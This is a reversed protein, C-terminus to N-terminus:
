PKSLCWSWAQMMASMVPEFKSSLKFKYNESGEKIAHPSNEPRSKKHVAYTTFCKRKLINRRTDTLFFMCIVLSKRGNVKEKFLIFNMCVCRCVKGQAQTKIKNEVERSLDTHLSIKLWPNKFLIWFAQTGQHSFM